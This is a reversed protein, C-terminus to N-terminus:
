YLKNPKWFGVPLEEMEGGQLNHITSYENNLQSGRTSNNVSRLNDTCGRISRSEFIASSLHPALFDPPTTFYEYNGTFGRPGLGPTSDHQLGFDSPWNQEVSAGYKGPTGPRSPGFIPAIKGDMPLSHAPVDLPEFGQSMSDHSVFHSTFDLYKNTGIKLLERQSFAASRPLQQEYLSGTGRCTSYTSDQFPSRAFARDRAIRPDTWSYQSKTASGRSVVSAPNVIKSPVVSCHNDAITTLSLASENQDVADETLQPHEDAIPPIDAIQPIPQLPGPQDTINTSLSPATYSEQLGNSIAIPIDIKDKWQDLLVQVATVFQSQSNQEKTCTDNTFKEENNVPSNSRILHSDALDTAQPTKQVLDSSESEPVMKSPEATTAGNNHSNASQDSQDHVHLRDIEEGDNHDSRRQSDLTSADAATPHIHRHRRVTKRSEAAPLAPSGRIRCSEQDKKGPSSRFLDSVTKKQPTSRQYNLSTSWTFNSTPISQRQRMPPKVPSISARYSSSPRSSVPPHPGREGFGLFPRIPAEVHTMTPNTAASYRYLEGGPSHIPPLPIAYGNNLYSSLEREILPAKAVTFFRSIEDDNDVANHERRRKSNNSDRKPEPPKERHARLFNIESFSLDPM